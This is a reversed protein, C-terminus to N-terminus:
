FDIQARMGIVDVGYDRDGVVAIAADKLELRSYNLLFRVYDTPIWTVGLQYATQKGGIVGAGGDNLDLYDIRAIAQLAGWGGKDIPNLVKTRDFTGSKYGRTEGTFFYGVEAYGGFFMPDEAGPAILGQKLWHAEGAVHLPGFIGAAEVGYSTESDTPLNPTAVFRVSTSHIQPRQRYRIDGATDNLERHHVSAGFHLQNSGMKPAYVARGDLSYSNNAGGVSSVDDTFVGADLKFDGMEYTGSVGIRREFAFADTFAARELFSTFRSSTLEELSQFNNHQGFSIAANKGKWQFFADALEVENGAFDAEFKYAFPGAVQGEVGIRGRRLENSFGLEQNTIAGKPNSVHAFDYQLRGRLKFSWGADKDVWQPAGKWSPQAASVQKKLADIQAQMAEIQAQLFEAKASAEDLPAEDAAVASTETAEQARASSAFALFASSALLVATFNSTKM